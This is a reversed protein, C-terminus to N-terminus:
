KYPEQYRWTFKGFNADLKPLKFEASSTKIKEIVIKLFDEVKFGIDVTIASNRDAEGQLEKIKQDIHEMPKKMTDTFETNNSVQNLM